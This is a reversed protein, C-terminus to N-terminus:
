YRQTFVLCSAQLGSNREWGAKWGDREQQQLRWPVESSGLLEVSYQRMWNEDGLKCILLQHGALIFLEGLIVCNTQLLASILTRTEPSIIRYKYNVKGTIAIIPKSHRTYWLLLMLHLYFTFPFVSSYLLPSSIYNRFLLIFFDSPINYFEMLVDSVDSLVLQSNLSIECILYYKVQIKFIFLYQDPM